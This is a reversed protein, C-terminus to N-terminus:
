NNVCSSPRASVIHTLMAADISHIVLDRKKHTHTVGEEFLISRGTPDHKSRYTHKDALERSNSVM